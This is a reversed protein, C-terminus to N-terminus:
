SFYNSHARTVTKRSHAYAKKVATRAAWAQELDRKNKYRWIQKLVFEAREHREKLGGCIAEAKPGDIHAQIVSLPTDHKYMQGFYTPLDPFQKRLKEILTSTSAFSTDSLANIFDQVGIDGECLEYLIRRDEEYIDKEDYKSFKTRRMARKKDFETFPVHTGGEKKFAKKRFYQYGRDAMHQVTAEGISRCCDYLTVNGPTNAQITIHAVEHIFAKPQLMNILGISGSENEERRAFASRNGNNLEDFQGHIGFRTAALRAVFQDQDFSPLIGAAAMEGFVEM